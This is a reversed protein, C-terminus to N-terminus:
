VEHENWFSCQLVPHGRLAIYSNPLPLIHPNPCMPAQNPAPNTGSTVPLGSLLACKISINTLERTHM